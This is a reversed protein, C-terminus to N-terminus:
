LTRGQASYLDIKNIIEQTQIKNEFLLLNIIIM